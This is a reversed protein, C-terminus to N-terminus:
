PIAQKVLGKFQGVENLFRYLAGSDKTQIM